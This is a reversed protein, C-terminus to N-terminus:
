AIAFEHQITSGIAFIFSWFAALWHLASIDLHWWITLMKSWCGCQNELVHSEEVAIGAVGDIAFHFTAHLKLSETHGITGLAVVFTAMVFVIAFAVFAAWISLTHVVVLWSALVDIVIVTFTVAAEFFLDFIAVLNASVNRVTRFSSAQRTRAFIEHVVVFAMAWLSVEFGLVWLSLKRMVAQRFRAPMWRGDSVGCSGRCTFVLEEVGIWHLVSTVITVRKVTCGRTLLGKEQCALGVTVESRGWSAVRHPAAIRWVDAKCLKITRLLEDERLLNLVRAVV